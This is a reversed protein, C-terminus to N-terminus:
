AKKRAAKLEDLQNQLHAIKADHDMDMDKNAIPDHLGNMYGRDESGALSNVEIGEEPEKENMESVEGQEDSMQHQPEESPDEEGADKAIVIEAKTMAPKGQKLDDAMMSTAMKRVGLLVDKKAKLGIDDSPKKKDEKVGKKLLDLMKM